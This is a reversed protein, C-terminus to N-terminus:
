KGERSESLLGGIRAYDVMFVVRLRSEFDVKSYVKFCNMLLRTFSSQYDLILPLANRYSGNESNKKIVVM